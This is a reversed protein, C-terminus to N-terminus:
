EALGRETCTGSACSAEFAVCSPTAYGCGSRMPGSCHEDDAKEVAIRVAAEGSRAVPRPCAGQCRTSVDVLTCDADVLCSLHQVRVAEVDAQAAETSEECTLACGAGLTLISLAAAAAALRSTKM